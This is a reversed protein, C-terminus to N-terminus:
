AFVKENKVNLILPLRSNIDFHFQETNQKIYKIVQKEMNVKRLRKTLRTLFKDAEDESWNFNDLGMLTREKANKLGEFRDLITM